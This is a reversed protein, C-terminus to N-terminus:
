RRGLGLKLANTPCADVCLRCKSYTNRLPMCRRKDLVTHDQVLADSMEILKSFDPM